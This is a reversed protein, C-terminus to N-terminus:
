LGLGYCKVSRVSLAKMIAERGASSFKNDAVYVHQLFHICFLLEAHARKQRAPRAWAAHPPAALPRTRVSLKLLAGSTIASAFSQMGPDSIKNGPISLEKLSPLAGPLAGAFAQMAEDDLLNGNLSLKELNALAGGALAAAFPLMGRSGIQNSGLDLHRLDEMYEKALGVQASWWHAIARSCTM